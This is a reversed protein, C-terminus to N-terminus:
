LLDVDKQEFADIEGERLLVFCKGFFVKGLHTDAETSSITYDEETKGTTTLWIIWSQKWSVYGILSDTIYIFIHETV